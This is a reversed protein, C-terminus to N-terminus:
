SGWKARLSLVDYTQLTYFCNIGPKMVALFDPNTLDTPHAVSLAHGLEHTATSIKCTDDNGYNYQYAVAKVWTENETALLAGTGWSKYFYCYGYLNPDSSTYNNFYTIIKASYGYTDTANSPSLSVNSSVGNWQAAATNAYYSNGAIAYTLHGTSFGGSFHDASVNNTNILILYLIYCCIYTMWKKSKKILKVSINM